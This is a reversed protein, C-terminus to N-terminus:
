KGLTVVSGYFTEADWIFAKAYYNKGNEVVINQLQATATGNAITANTQYKLVAYDGEMTYIAFMVLDSTDGNMAVSMNMTGAVVDDVTAGSGNTFTVVPGTVPEGKVTIKGNVTKVSSAINTDTTDYFDKLKLTLAYEKAVATPVDFTLTAVTGSEIDVGEAMMDVWGLKVPNTGAKPKQIGSVVDGAAYTTFAIGADYSVEIQFSTLTLAGEFTVPVSVAATGEGKTVEASGVTVTPATAASVSLASMSSIILLGALLLTLIKTTKKIM